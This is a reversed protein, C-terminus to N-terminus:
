KYKQNAEVTDTKLTVLWCCESLDRSASEYLSVSYFVSHLPQIMLIGNDQATQRWLRKKSWGWSPVDLKEWAGM